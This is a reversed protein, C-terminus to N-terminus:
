DETLMVEALQGEAERHLATERDLERQLSASREERGEVTLAKKNIRQEIEVQERRMKALDDAAQEIRSM